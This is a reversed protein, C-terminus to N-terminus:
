SFHALQEHIKERIITLEEQLYPFEDILSEASRLAERLVSDAAWDDMGGRNIWEINRMGRQMQQKRCSGMLAYAQATKGLGQMLDILQTVVALSENEALEMRLRQLERETMEDFSVAKAGELKAELVKMMDSQTQLMELMTTTNGVGLEEVMREDSTVAIYKAVIMAVHPNEPSQAFEEVSGIKLAMETKKVVDTGDLLTASVVLESGEVKAPDIRLQFAFCFQDNAKMPRIRYRDSTKQLDSYERILTVGPPLNM